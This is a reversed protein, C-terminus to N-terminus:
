YHHMTYVVTIRFRWSIFIYMKSYFTYMRNLGGVNHYLDFSSVLGQYYFFRQNIIDNSIVGQKYSLKTKAVIVKLM